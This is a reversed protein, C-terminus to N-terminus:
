FSPLSFIEWLRHGCVTCFVYKKDGVRGDTTSFSHVDRVTNTQKLGQMNRQGYKFVVRFLCSAKLQRDTKPHCQAMSEPLKCLIEAFRHGALPLFITQFHLGKPKLGAHNNTRENM